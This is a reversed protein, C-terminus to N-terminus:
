LSCNGTLGKGGWGAHVEPSLAKERNSTAGGRPPPTEGAGSEAEFPPHPQIKFLLEGCARRDRHRFSVEPGGARVGLTLAGPLGLGVRHHREWSADLCVQTGGRGSGAARDGEQGLPGALGSGVSERGGKVCVGLNIGDRKSLEDPLLGM